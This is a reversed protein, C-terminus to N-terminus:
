NVPYEAFNRPTESLRVKVDYKEDLVTRLRNYIVICLNETTPPSDKFEEFELNLNKHDFYEEIHETIIDKLTKLNILMGTVPDIEGIVTVELEYNHGHFNPNACKGFIRENKERTWSPVYLQHAANFHGKRIVAIRM